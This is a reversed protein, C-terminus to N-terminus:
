VAFDADEDAADYIDDAAFECDAAGSGMPMGGPEGGTVHEGLPATQAQQVLRAIDEVSQMGEPEPVGETLAEASAVGEGMNLWPHALIGAVTLRSQPDVVFVREFLDLVEASLSLGQPFSYNRALIRGITARFNRPEAPDEFPYTGVLMVYLTVGCSWVDAARGDYARRALVEPAIYAPTGVTSKAASHLLSSKSYGFDCIKLVPQAGCGDLLANELKLDRHAVSQAHCYAVGALLQRFFFRAEPEGFRGQSCIREFVEGGSAYEMVIALHTPTLLM